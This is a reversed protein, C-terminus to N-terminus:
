DTVEFDCSSPDNIWDQHSMKIEIKKNTKRM